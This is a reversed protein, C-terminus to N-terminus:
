VFNALSDSFEIRVAWDDGREQRYSWKVMPGGDDVGLWEAVADRIAKLSGRINDDDLLRGARAPTIRTMVVECPLPPREKPLVWAVAEHERKVRRHRAYHHESQNPGRTTRIPVTVSM